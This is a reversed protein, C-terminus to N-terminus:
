SRGKGYVADRYLLGSDFAYVATVNDEKWYRGDGSFVAAQLVHTRQGFAQGYGVSLVFKGKKDDKSIEVSLGRQWQFDVAYGQQSATKKIFPTLRKLYETENFRVQRFAESVPAYAFEQASSFEQQAREQEQHAQGAAQEAKEHVRKQKLVEAKPVLSIEIWNYETDLPKTPRWEYAGSVARGLFKGLIKKLATAAKKKDRIWQSKTKRDLYSLDLADHDHIFNAQASVVVTKRGKDYRAEMNDWDAARFRRAWKKLAQFLAFPKPIEVDTKAQVWRHAVRQVVDMSHHGCFFIRLPSYLFRVVVSERGVANLVAKGGIATGELNPSPIAM